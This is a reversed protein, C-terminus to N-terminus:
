FVGSRLLLRSAALPTALGVGLSALRDSIGIVNEKV